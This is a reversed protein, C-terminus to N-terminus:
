EVDSADNDSLHYNSGKVRIYEIYRGEDSDTAGCTCLRNDFLSEIEELKKGKTEPLCGYIFLLGVAAFGAYLFFAGYYTLYEATHLFTLSVLVNFIWNIGSSCANGTSRAWLPYIESNVTWPMPGMGGQDETAAEAEDEQSPEREEQKM